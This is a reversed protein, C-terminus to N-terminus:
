LKAITYRSSFLHSIILCFSDSSAFISNTSLALCLFYTRKKWNNSLREVPWLKTIVHGIKIPKWCFLFRQISFLILYFVLFIIHELESENHKIAECKTIFSCLSPWRLARYRYVTGKHSTGKHLQTRILHHHVYLWLM